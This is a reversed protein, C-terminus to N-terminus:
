RMGSFQRHLASDSTKSHLVTYTGLECDGLKNKKGASGQDPCIWPFSGGGESSKPQFSLPPDNGQGSDEFRLIGWFDAAQPAKMGFINESWGRYSTM